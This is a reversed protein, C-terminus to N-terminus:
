TSRTNGTTKSTTTRPTRETEVVTSTTGSHVAPETVSSRSLGLRATITPEVTGM